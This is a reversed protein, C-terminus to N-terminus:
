GPPGQIPPALAPLAVLVARPVGPFLPVAALGTGPNYPTQLLAAGSWLDGSQSFAANVLADPGFPPPIQTLVATLTQFGPTNDYIWTFPLLALSAAAIVILAYQQITENGVFVLPILTPSPIVSADNDWELTFGGPPGQIGPELTISDGDAPNPTSQAFSLRYAYNAGGSPVSPARLLGARPIAYPPLPVNSPIGRYGLPM